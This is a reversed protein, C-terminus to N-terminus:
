QDKREGEGAAEAGRHTRELLRIISPVCCAAGGGFVLILLVAPIATRPLVGLILPEFVLHFTTEWEETGIDAIKALGRSADPAPHLLSALHSLVPHRIPSIPIPVSLPSASILLLASHDGPITSNLPRLSLDFRTPSQWTLKIMLLSTSASVSGPWSLRITWDM